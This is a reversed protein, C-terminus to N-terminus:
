VQGGASLDPAAVQPESNQMPQPVVAVTTLQPDMASKLMAMQVEHARQERERQEQSMREKERNAFWFRAVVFLGGFIAIGVIIQWGHGSLFSILGGLTTTIFTVAGATSAQIGSVEKETSTEATVQAVAVAPTAVIPLSVAAPQFAGTQPLSQPNETLQQAPASSSAASSGSPIDSPDEITAAETAPPAFVKVGIRWDSRDDYLKRDSHVSIHAHHSHSNKGTYKKWKQLESGQVTIRGEYIIYKVRPDKSKCIADIVSQLSLDDNLDEDIDIASVVGQKGDFIWPNHDSNRSAHAADGISGDSTKDRRPFAANLQERLRKLSEALRWAM